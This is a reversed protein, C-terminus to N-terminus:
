LKMQVRRQELPTSARARGYITLITGVLGGVAQVTQVIGQGAERVLDGTIDVGIAPGLAPLVTSLGTIIAGWITISQGWWKATPETQTAPQIM